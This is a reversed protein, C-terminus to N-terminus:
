FQKLFYLIDQRNGEVSLRAFIQYFNVCTKNAKRNNKELSTYRLNLKSNKECGYSTSFNM